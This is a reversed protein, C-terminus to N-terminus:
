FIQWKSKWCAGETNKSPNIKAEAQVFHPMEGQGNRLLEGADSVCVLNGHVVAAMEGATRLVNAEDRTRM